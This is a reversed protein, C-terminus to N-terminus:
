GECILQLLDVHRSCINKKLFPVRILLAPTRVGQVGGPDAVAHTWLLDVVFQATYQQFEM